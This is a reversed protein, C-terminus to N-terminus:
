VPPLMRLTRAQTVAERRSHVALKGYITRTHSKVTPLSIFLRQAIESNSLGEALLRLVELERDTLPEILPQIHLPVPSEEMRAFGSVGFAALLQSAYGRVIGQSAAHRLLRAMPEGEDVFTRLYGEPESLELARGLANLAGSRDGVAELALARLALIEIVSGMRGAAEAPPLMAELLALAETPQDEALLVRVLTLDEFERLYETEGLQRYDRAWIAASDLKGQALWIRAQYASALISLRPINGHQASEVAQQIEALAGGADGQGQKVLALVARMNGFSEAIGGRSLLELGDLLHREAAHLDNQEYLIQGLALGAFGTLTMREGDITGLEMAQECTQCARRLQGQVIQAEALTCVVPVATFAMGARRAADIAQSYAECAECVDGARLCAMGLTATARIRASADDEPVHALARRAFEVAQQVDGRVVAHGARDAGVLGLIKEADQATPNRQLWEELEQLADEAAGPQGSVFLARAAFLRLWPRARVVDGPLAKLWGLLTAVDTSSWTTLELTAREIVDAALCFDKTALAHHVAESSFHNQEYWMAARRHLGLVQGPLTEQLRARLLDAFLRHYRYWSREDDLPVIFLNAREIRELTAQGDDQGTVADCLPGTQRDLISTQLLFSQVIDPQRRLVEETLYDLIHRSSGTLSRAFSGPDHRGQMSVGAMQLGAIWGETRAALAAVDDASLQLGMARNLFETAEDRTFRLDTSRLETLEGSGRLHALHLPPDARTAIVLHMQPPLHDLLFSLGDHILQAEIVHYDDLVLVLGEPLLEIENILTTLIAEIAQAETASAFAAPPPQASQLMALAAEGMGAEITQLAAILYTWFRPPESDGKDLSLWAVPRRCGVVWESLLTTKGFGAPASILTLKCSLGANLREILRPRSVLEPRVPPVFLKTTLLPTTM